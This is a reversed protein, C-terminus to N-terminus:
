SNGNQINLYRDIAQATLDLSSAIQPVTHGQSFLQQVQEAETLQVIDANNTAVPEPQSTARASSASAAAATSALSAFSGSIALGM